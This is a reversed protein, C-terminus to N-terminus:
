QVTLEGTMQPHVDCVFAYTGPEDITVNLEQTTPGTEIETKADIGDTIHLNHPVGDDRNEFVISIEGAAVVVEDNVFAIQEAGITVASGASDATADASGGADQEPTGQEASQDLAGLELTADDDGCATALLALAAMGAAAGLRRSRRISM